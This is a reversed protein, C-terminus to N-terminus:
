YRPGRRPRGDHIGASLRLQNLINIPEPRNPSQRIYLQPTLPLTRQQHIHHQCTTLTPLFRM